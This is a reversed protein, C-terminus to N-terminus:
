EQLTDNPHKARYHRQDIDSGLPAFILRFKKRLRLERRHDRFNDPSLATILLLLAIKGESHIRLGALKSKFSLFATPIGALAALRNMFLQRLTENWWKNFFALQLPRLAANHMDWVGIVERMMDM